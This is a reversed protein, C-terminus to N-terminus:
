IHLTKMYNLIKRSEDNERIFRSDMSLTNKGVVKISASEPKDLFDLIRKEDATPCLGLWVFIRM